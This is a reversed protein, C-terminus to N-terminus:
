DKFGMSILIQNEPSTNKELLTDIETKAITLDREIIEKLDSTSTHTKTSYIKYTLYEHKFIFIIYNILFGFNYRKMIITIIDHPNKTNYDNMLTPWADIFVEQVILYKKYEIIRKM